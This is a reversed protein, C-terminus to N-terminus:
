LIQFGSFIGIGDDVSSVSVGVGVVGVSISISVSIGAGIDFDVSIIWLSNCWSVSLQLFDNKQFHDATHQFIFQILLHTLM